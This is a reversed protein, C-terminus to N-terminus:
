KNLMENLAIIVVVSITTVTLAYIFNATLTSGETKFYYKFLQQFTSNWALATVYSLSGVIFGLLLLRAEKSYEKYEVM